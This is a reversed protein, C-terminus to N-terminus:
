SHSTDVSDDKNLIIKLNQKIWIKITAHINYGSMLYKFYDDYGRLVILVYSFLVLAYFTVFSSDNLFFTM